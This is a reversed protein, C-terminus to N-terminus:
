RTYVSAIYWSVVLALFILLLLGGTVILATRWEPTNIGKPRSIGDKRKYGRYGMTLLMTALLLQLGWIVVFTDGKMEQHEPGGHGRLWSSIMVGILWAAVTYGLGWLTGLTVQDRSTAMAAFGFSVGYACLSSFLAAGSLAITDGASMDFSRTFGTEVLLSWLKQPWDFSIALVSVGVLLLLFSLSVVLRAIYRQARQPPQALSFEEIGELADSGGFTLGLYLALATGWGIVWGPHLFVQLIWQGILWFSLIFLMQSGHAFWEHWYLGALTRQPGVAKKQRPLLSDHTHTMATM